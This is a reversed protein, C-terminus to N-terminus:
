YLIYPAPNVRVGNAIVEFHLHNGTSYGTSGVAAISEGQAVVQGSKVYLTSAHAYRTKIGNGHDVIVNYGFDSDYAAYTVTGGAAANITVGYSACLDIGKHNRGDGFYASIKYSGKAIPIMFGSSSKGNSTNKIPATGITIVEAVPEKVTKESLEKRSVEKGNISEVVVASESVGYEGDTTVVYYGVSKKNTKVKKTEFPIESKTIYSTTTKVELANVIDKIQDSSKINDKLFYGKIIEVDEVFESENEGKKKDFKAKRAEVLKTIEDKDGCIVTEGNVSLAASYVIDETNEIMKEAVSSANDLKDTVTLTMVLKPESFSGEASEGEVANVALVKARDCVAENSVTGIVRGSYKVDFGVRIGAFFLALSLSLIGLICVTSIRFAKNNNKVFETCRQITNSKRLKEIRKCVAFFKFIITM